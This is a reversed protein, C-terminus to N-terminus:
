FPRLDLDCPWIFYICLFMFYIGCVNDSLPFKGGKYSISTPTLTKVPLEQIAM